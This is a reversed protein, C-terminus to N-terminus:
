PILSQQPIKDLNIPQGVEAELASKAHLAIKLLEGVLKIDASAGGSLIGAASNLSLELIALFTSVKSGPQPAPATSM